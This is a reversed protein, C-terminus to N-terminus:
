SIHLGCAASSQLGWALEKNDAAPTKTAPKAEQLSKM